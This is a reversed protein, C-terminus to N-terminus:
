SGGGTKNMGFWRVWPFARILFREPEDLDGDPWPIFAGHTWLLARTDKGHAISRSRSDVTQGAYMPFPGCFQVYVGRIDEVHRTRPARAAWGHRVWRFVFPRGKALVMVITAGYLGLVVPPAFAAVIVLRTM